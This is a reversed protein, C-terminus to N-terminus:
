KRARRKKAREAAEKFFNIEEEHSMVSIKEGLNARIHHQLKVADFDKETKIDTKM